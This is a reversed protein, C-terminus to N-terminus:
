GRVRGVTPRLRPELTLVAAALACCCCCVAAGGPSLGLSGLINDTPWEVIRASSGRALLRALEGWVGQRYGDAASNVALPWTVTVVSTAAVSALLLAGAVRPIRAFVPPLALAAFPLAPILFRPGPSDGGYPTFYGFEIALFAFSVACAVAAELRRRQLWLLVLGSAALLFVPSDVVIGRDGVVTFWIGRLTPAHIGFFGAAQDSSFANAVYRYSLHLPSGFAAWNYGALLALGPVAGALFAGTARRGSRAVYGALVILVIATEYEVPVALGAVLGALLHRRRWALVFAGFALAAGPIHEFSTAAAGCAVSGLAFAVLTRAGTGPAIGEAVRGVLTALILFPVGVTLIRIVWIRTDNQERWQGDPPLGVLQAVPAELVSLGPAKDSYLHGRYSARDFSTRLCADNSLAGHWLAQALCLRSRDQAGVPNIVTLAAIAVLALLLTERPPRRLVLSGAPDGQM